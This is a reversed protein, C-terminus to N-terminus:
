QSQRPTNEPKTQNQPWPPARFDLDPTPIISPVRQSLTYTRAQHLASSTQIRRPVKSSSLITKTPSNTTDKITDLVNSTSSDLQWCRCWISWIPSELTPESEDIENRPRATSVNEAPNPVGKVNEMKQRTKHYVGLREQEAHNAPEFTLSQSILRLWQVKERLIKNSM